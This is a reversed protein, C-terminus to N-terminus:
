SKCCQPCREAMGCLLRITLAAAPWSSIMPHGRLISCMGMTAVCRTNVNGPNMIRRCAAPASSVALDKRKAGYWLWSITQGRPSCCDTRPGAYVTSARWISIWKASCKRSQPIMRMRRPSCQSWTGSSLAVRTMARVAQQSNQAIRICMWRSSQSIQLNVFCIWNKAPVIVNTAAVVVICVMTTCGARSSSGWWAATLSRCHFKSHKCLNIERILNGAPIATRLTKPENREHNLEHSRCVGHAQERGNAVM